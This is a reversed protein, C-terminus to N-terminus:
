LKIEIYKKLTEILKRYGSVAYLYCQMKGTDGNAKKYTIVLRETFADKGIIAASVVESFETERKFLISAICTIKKDTMIILPQVYRAGIILLLFFLLALYFYDRFTGMGTIIEPFNQVTKTSTFMLVFIVLDFFKLATSAYYKEEM